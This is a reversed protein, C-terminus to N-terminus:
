GINFSLTDFDIQEYNGIGLNGAPLKKAIIYPSKLHGNKLDSRIRSTLNHATTPPTNAELLMMLEIM